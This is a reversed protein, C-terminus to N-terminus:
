ARGGDLRAATAKLLAWAREVHRREQRINNIALRLTFVGDIKTHSFFLAGSDNITNMVLENFENLEAEVRADGVQESYRAPRMRFCVTAFPVPHLLEADPDAEITAALGRALELHESIRARLGAMGFYRLHMWMKIGRARRGLQPVIESYDRGASRGDTSRLYEPVLSLAERLIGM